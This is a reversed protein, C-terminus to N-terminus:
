IGLRKMQGEPYRLGATVGPTFTRELTKADEETVEVNLAAINEDIFKKRKTGPIPVIDDGKALVWAIALQAPTCGKDSAMDRLPELLNINKKINEAKFRPHDRRRDGEILDDLGTITGTLFGRGMPSYAVYSIGLERCTPLLETESDRTWLSYETQLAVIPHVANARRITEPGAESLGLYRVKGQEILRVMAGVTDEIPVKADVRHQYYVDIVDVGLRKMSAECAQQVYEPRGDVDGKGDPLRINGFKTAILAKDRYGKLAKGLLEENHGKGYADSSDIFNMGQDLAYRLTAISENDDREGYAISMGMCGLGIASVKLKEKGLERQRM